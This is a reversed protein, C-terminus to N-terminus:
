LAGVDMEIYTPLNTVSNYSAEAPVGGLAPKGNIADFIKRLRWPRPVNCMDMNDTTWTAILPVGLSTAVLEDRSPFAEYRIFGGSIVLKIGTISPINPVFSRDTIHGPQPSSTSPIHVSEIGATGYPGSTYRKVVHRAVRRELTLGARIGGGSRNTVFFAWTWGWQVSTCTESLGSCTYPNTYPGPGNLDRDTHVTTTKAQTGFYPPTAVNTSTRKYYRIYNQSFGWSCGVNFESPGWSGATLVCPESIDVAEPYKDYWDYVFGNAIGGITDTGGGQTRPYVHASETFDVRPNLIM